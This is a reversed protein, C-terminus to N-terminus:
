QSTQKLNNSPNHHRSTGAFGKATIVQFLKFVNLHKKKQIKKFFLKHCSFCAPDATMFFTIMKLVRYINETRIFIFSPLVISNKNGPLRINKTKYIKVTQPLFHRWLSLSSFENIRKAHNSPMNQLAVAQFSSFQFFYQILSM